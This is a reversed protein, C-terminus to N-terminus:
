HSEIGVIRIGAHEASYQRNIQILISTMAEMAAANALPGAHLGRMGADQVLEIVEARAAKSDGSVLVDCDITVDSDVLAAAVNHFAAVVEVEEGVATQARVAASGESPLQVRGVKPPRLPVTADVLIKGTLAAKAAALVDLQHAFPVTLVALDGRRAAEPNDTGTIDANAVRDLLAAAAAAAKDRGRSGIVIPYGAQAWRYALGVGLKGTGGLIAITKKAM